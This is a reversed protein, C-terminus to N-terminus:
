TTCSFEQMGISPTYERVLYPTFHQRINRSYSDWKLFRNCYDVITWGKCEDKSLFHDRFGVFAKSKLRIVNRWLSVKQEWWSDRHSSVASKNGSSCQSKYNSKSFLGNDKSRPFFSSRVIDKRCCLVSCIENVDKSVFLRSGEVRLAWRECFVLVARM